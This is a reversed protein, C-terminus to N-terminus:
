RQVAQHSRRWGLRKPRSSPMAQPSWSRCFFTIQGARAAERIARRCSEVNEETAGLEPSLQQCAIVVSSM